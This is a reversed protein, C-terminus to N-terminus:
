PPICYARANWLEKRINIRGPDPADTTRALHVTENHQISLTLYDPRRYKPIVIASISLDITEVVINSFVAKKGKCTIDCIRSERSGLNKPDPPVLGLVKGANCM